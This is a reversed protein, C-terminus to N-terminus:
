IAADGDRRVAEVIARVDSATRAADRQAPRELVKRREDKSLSNWRLIRM